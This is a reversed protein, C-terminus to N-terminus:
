FINILILQLVGFYFFCFRGEQYDEVALHLDGDCKAERTKLLDKKAEMMVERWSQCETTTKIAFTVLRDFIKHFNIKKACMPKVLMKVSKKTERQEYNIM